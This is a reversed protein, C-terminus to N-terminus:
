PTTLPELIDHSKEKLGALWNDLMLATLCTDHGVGNYAGQQAVGVVRFQSDVFPGGSNGPRIAGAGTITMLRFNKYPELYNLVSEPLFDARNWKRYAPFGILTGPSGIEIQGPSSSFYKHSPPTNRFGLIALDLQKSRFLVRAPFEEKSQPRVLFLSKASIDEDLYDCLFQHGSEVEYKANLVHDCTVVLNLERYIFATGEGGVNYKKGAIGDWKVLFIAEEASARSQAIPEVPLSPALFTNSLREIDCLLNYREALRTYLIDTKGRVMRIYLLRGWLVNKLEPPLNTRTQRTWPRNKPPLSASIKIKNLWETQALEYGFTEWAHLGGRIKDIFRRRVNPSNNVTLGTVEMRSFRDSLRTKEENLLFGNKEIISRLEEGPFIEGHDWICIPLPLKEKQPHQFSFTLDDAYRTYTARCRRALESIERDLTRCVQNSLFPSTPAGQPLKGDRTCIHSVLSAVSHSFHFPAKRLVGRVRKFTISPFFDALDLNLIHKVKPSCHSEANTVISRDHVFGHVCKRPPSACKQLYALIRRQIIKLLKRPEDILRPTGNRKSILFSRYKPAPYVIKQLDDYEMGVIIRSFHPVFERVLALQFPDSEDFLMYGGFFNYPAAGLM